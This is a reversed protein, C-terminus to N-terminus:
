LPLEVDIEILSDGIKPLCLEIEPLINTSTGEALTATVSTGNDEATVSVPSTATKM